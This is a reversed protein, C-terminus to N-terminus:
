QRRTIEFGTFRRPPCPGRFGASLVPPGPLGPNPRQRLLPEVLVHRLALASAPGCRGEPTTPTAALGQLTACSAAAAPGSRGGGARLITVHLPDTFRGLM